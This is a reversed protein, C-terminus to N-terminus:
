SEVEVITEPNVGWPLKSSPNIDESMYVEISAKVDIGTNFKWKGSKTRYYVGGGWGKGHFAAKPSIAVDRGQGDKVIM